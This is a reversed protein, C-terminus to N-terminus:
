PATEVKWRYQFVSRNEVRSVTRSIAKDLVRELWDLNGRRYPHVIRPEGSIDAMEGALHVAANLDGLRDVLGLQMAQRGTYVRGDAVKRVAQLTMRREQAVAETFQVFADDIYGQFVKREEDNMERSPNGSDKFPGSKIVESSVGIKGLLESWQPFEMLVGISGTTTGPNAVISDAGLSAYYAGSTAIGGMSAIVPKEKRARKLAEYLEQSAAVGGGTSELRVVIAKIRSDRRFDDIEKIWGQTDWLVGSVEVLGVNGSGLPLVSGGHTGRTSLFTLLIVLALVAVLLLLDRRGRNNM